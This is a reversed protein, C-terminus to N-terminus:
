LPIIYSPTDLRCGFLFGSMSHSHLQLPLRM